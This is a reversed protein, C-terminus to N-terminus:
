EQIREEKRWGTKNMSEKVERGQPVQFGEEIRCVFGDAKADRRSVKPCQRYNLGVSLVVSCRMKGKQRAGRSVGLLEVPPTSLIGSM